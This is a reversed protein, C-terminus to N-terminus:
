ENPRTVAECVAEADNGDNKDSKRYPAVFKPAMLRVTHGHRQFRRGGVRAGRLLGGHRDPVAAVVGGDRGISGAAGNPAAGGQGDRERRAAFVREKGPRDGRYYDTGHVEGGAM